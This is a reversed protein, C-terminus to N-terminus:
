HKAYGFVSEKNIEDEYVNMRFLRFLVLSLVTNYIVSPLATRIITGMTIFNFNYLHLLASHIAVAVASFVCVRAGISIYRPYKKLSHAGLAVCICLILEMGFSEIGIVAYVLSAIVAVFLMKIFDSELLAVFLILLFVLTPKAGMISFKHMVCVDLLMSIFFWLFLKTNKRKLMTKEKRNKPLGGVIDKFIALYAIEM